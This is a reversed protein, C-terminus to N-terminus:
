FGIEQRRSALQELGSETFRVNVYCTATGDSPRAFERKAEVIGRGLIQEMAAKRLAWPPVNEGAMNEQVLEGLGGPQASSSGTLFALIWNGAQQTTWLATVWMHCQANDTHFVRGDIIGDSKLGRFAEQISEFSIGPPPDFKIRVEKGAGACKSM